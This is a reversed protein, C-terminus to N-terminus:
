FIAGLYPEDETKQPPNVTALIPVAAARKERKSEHVYDLTVYLLIPLFAGLLMGFLLAQMIEEEVFFRVSLSLGASLTDTFRWVM